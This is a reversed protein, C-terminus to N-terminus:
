CVNPFDVVDSTSETAVLPCYFLDVRSAVDPLDIARQYSETNNVLDQPFHKTIYNGPCCIAAFLKLDILVNPYHSSVCYSLILSYKQKHRSAEVLFDKKTKTQILMILQLIFVLNM